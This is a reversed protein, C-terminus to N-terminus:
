EFIISSIASPMPRTRGGVHYISRWEGEYLWDIAKTYFYDDVFSKNLEDNSDIIAVKNYKKSYNIPGTIEINGLENDANRVFEVCFGRHEDAYHSWMLINECNESMSFIGAKKLWIEKLSNVGKSAYHKVTDFKKPDLSINGLLKKSLKEDTSDELDIRCDFPDNFSEPKSVWIEKNILVSLSYENYAYYKYLHTVKPYEM